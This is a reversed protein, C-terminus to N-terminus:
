LLSITSFFWALSRLHGWYICKFSQDVTSLIYVSFLIYKGNLYTRGVEVGLTSMKVKIIGNM